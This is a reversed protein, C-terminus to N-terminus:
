VRDEKLFTNNPETNQQWFTKSAKQTQSLPKCTRYNECENCELYLVVDQTEPCIKAM